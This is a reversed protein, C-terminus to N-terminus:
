RSAGSRRTTARQRDRRPAGRPPKWRISISRASWRPAPLDSPLHLGPPMDPLRVAAAVLQAATARDGHFGGPVICHVPPNGSLRVEDRPEDVDLSMRLDLVIRKQTGQLGAVRHHIGCVQGPAVDFYPTRIRQTAVVPSLDEDLRDIPWGLAGALHAASEALGVHGIRGEAALAEFAAPTMGAGVKRQLPERRQRADVARHVEVADVSQMNSTLVLPWVDMAFGPNIGTGVICRKARLAARHLRAAAAAARFAPYSLEETSSVVHYGRALAAEVTRLVSTVSSTTTVFAIARQAPAPPIDAAVRGRVGTRGLVDSLARDVLAPAQDVCGSLRLVESRALVLQAVERGIPGLGVVIASPRTFPAKRVQLPFQQKM